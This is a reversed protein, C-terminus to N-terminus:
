VEIKFSERFKYGNPLAFEVRFFGHKHNVNVVECPMPTTVRREYFDVHLTPILRLKMGVELM